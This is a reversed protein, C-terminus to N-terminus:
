NLWSSYTPTYHFHGNPHNALFEAVRKTKHASLNDLIIHIEKAASQTAIVDTHFAVFEASTHREGTKSIIAGGTYRARLLSLFARLAASGGACLGRRRWRRLLSELAM